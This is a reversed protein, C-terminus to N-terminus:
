ERSEQENKSMRVNSQHERGSAKEKTEPERGKGGEGTQRNLQKDQWRGDQRRAAASRCGTGPFVTRSTCWYSLILCPSSFISSDHVLKKGEQEM